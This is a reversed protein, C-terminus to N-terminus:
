NPLKNYPSDILYVWQGQANKRFVESAFWEEHVKGNIDILQWRGSRLIIDGNQVTTSSDPVSRVRRNKDALIERFGEKIETRGKALSGDQKVLIGEEDFFQAIGEVDRAAMAQGFGSRTSNLEEVAHASGMVTFLLMAIVKKYGVTLM